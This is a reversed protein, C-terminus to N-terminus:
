RIFCFSRGADAMIWARAEDALARPQFDPLHGDDLRYMTGVPADWEGVIERRNQRAKPAHVVRLDYEGWRQFGSIGQRERIVYLRGNRITPARM